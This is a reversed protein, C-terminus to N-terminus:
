QQLEKSSTINLVRIRRLLGERVGSPPSFEDECLGEVVAPGRQMPQGEGKFAIVDQFAIRSGPQVQPLLAPILEIPPLLAHVHMSFQLADPAATWSSSPRVEACEQVPVILSDGPSVLQQM